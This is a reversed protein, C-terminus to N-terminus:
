ISSGNIIETLSTALWFYAYATHGPKARADRVIISLSTIGAISFPWGLVM